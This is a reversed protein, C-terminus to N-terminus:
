TRVCEFVLTNSGPGASNTYEDTTPFVYNADSRNVSWNADGV